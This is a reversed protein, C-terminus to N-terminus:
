RNRKSDRSEILLQRFGAFGKRFFFDLLRGLGGKCRLAKLFFSGAKSFNREKLFLKVIAFNTNALAKEFAFRITDPLDLELIRKVAGPRGLVAGRSRDISFKHDFIHVLTPTNIFCIRKNELCLRIALYTWELYQPMGIFLESPVTATRFLGSGTLLWNKILFGNLPDPRFKSFDNINVAEHGDNSILGSTVVVDIAPDAQIAQLRTTMAHPLLYDDDDFIAFYPTAVLNRGLLMAAPQSAQETYVFRIDSRRRLYDLLESDYLSGNAIVIPITRAHLQFAASDIAKLLYPSRERTALTPIIISVSQDESM